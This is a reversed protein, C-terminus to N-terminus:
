SKLLIMCLKMRFLYLLGKRARASGKKSIKREFRNIANLTINSVLRPLNDRAFPIAVNTLANKGLNGFWSRFSEGFHIM